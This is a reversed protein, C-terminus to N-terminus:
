EGLKWIQLEIDSNEFLEKFVALVKEWEGHAIGCGYNFAVGITKLKANKCYTDRIITFCERIALYNTTFDSEQSFCNAIFKTGTQKAFLGDVSWLYVNGLLNDNLNSKCFQSYSIEIQNFKKAIQKAFGGGMVGQLNVQHAIIDCGSKLLDGNFYKIM